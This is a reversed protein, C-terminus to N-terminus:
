ISQTGPILSYDTRVTFFISTTFARGIETKTASTAGRLLATRLAAPATRRLLRRRLAPPGAAATAALSRVLLDPRIPDTCTRTEYRGFCLTEFNTPTVGLSTQQM